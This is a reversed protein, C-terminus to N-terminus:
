SIDSEQAEQSCFYLVGCFFGQILVGPCHMSVCAGKVCACEGVEVQVPAAKTRPAVHTFPPEEVTLAGSHTRRSPCCARRQFNSFILHLGPGVTSQSLM